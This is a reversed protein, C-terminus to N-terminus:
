PLHASICIPSLIRNSETLRTFLANISTLMTALPHFLLPGDKVFPGPCKIFLLTSWYNILHEQGSIFIGVM